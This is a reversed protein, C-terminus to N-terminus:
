RCQRRDPLVVLRLLDGVAYRGRQQGHQARVHDVDGHGRWRVLGRDLRRTQGGAQRRPQGGGSRSHEAISPESPRFLGVGHLVREPISRQPDRRRRDAVSAIGRDERTAGIRLKGALRIAEQEPNGRTICRDRKLSPLGLRFLPSHRRQDLPRGLEDAEGVEVALRFIQIRSAALKQSERIDLLHGDEIEQSGVVARLRAGLQHRLHYLGSAPEPFEVETVELRSLDNGTEDVPEADVLHAGAPRHVHGHYAAVQPRL